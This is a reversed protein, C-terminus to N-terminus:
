KPEHSESESIRKFLERQSLLSATRKWQNTSPGRVLLDMRKYEVNRPSCQIAESGNIPTAALLLGENRLHWTIRYTDASRDGYLIILSGTDNSRLSLRYFTPLVNDYGVWSGLLDEEKPPQGFRTGLVALPLVAALLGAVLNRAKMPM